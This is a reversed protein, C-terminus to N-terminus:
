VSQSVGSVITTAISAFAWQVMWNAYSHGVYQRGSDPNFFQNGQLAFGGNGIFGNSGDGFAFGYGVLYFCVASICFEALNKVLINTTNKLHVSGVELFTFGAQM